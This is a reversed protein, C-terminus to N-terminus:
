RLKVDEVNGLMNEFVKRSQVLHGGGYVVLVRDNNSLADAITTDLHRERIEGTDASMREFYSANQSRVPALNQSNIQLFDRGECDNHQAYWMKFDQVTLRQEPPVKNEVYYRLHDLYEQAKQDFNEANVGEHEVWRPIWRLLYFAAVDKTSYGKDVMQAFIQNDSPEGGIFPVGAQMAQHAAYEPEECTAFNEAAKRNAHDQYFQPSIGRETELGEIVLLQPKGQEMVFRVSKFTDNEPGREHSAAVYYLHRKQNHFHTIYPNRYPAEAQLERSYDRILSLDARLKWPESVKPQPNEGFLWNVWSMFFKETHANYLLITVTKSDNCGNTIYHSNGRIWAQRRRFAPVYEDPRFRHPAPNESLREARHVRHNMM